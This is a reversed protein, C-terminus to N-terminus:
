SSLMSHRVLYYLIMQKGSQMNFECTQVANKQCKDYGINVLFIGHMSCAASLFHTICSSYYRLHCVQDNRSALDTRPLEDKEDKLSQVSDRDYDTSAISSTDCASASDDL